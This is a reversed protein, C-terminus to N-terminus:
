RKTCRCFTSPRPLVSGQDNNPLLVSVSRIVRLTVLPRNLSVSRLCLMSFSPGAQRTVNLMLLTSFDSDSTILARGFRVDISERFSRHISSTSSNFFHIFQLLPHISSTSSNFFHIFQLLSSLSTSFFRRLQACPVDRCIPRIFNHASLTGVISHLSPNGTAYM